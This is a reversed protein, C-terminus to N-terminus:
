RFEKDSKTWGAFMVFYSKFIMCLICNSVDAVTLLKPWEKPQKQRLKKSLLDLIQDLIQDETM